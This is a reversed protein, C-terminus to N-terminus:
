AVNTEHAAFAENLAARLRQRARLLRVGVTGCPIALRSSIEKHSLRRFMSLEFPERYLPPLGAVAATVAEDSIAAWRPSEEPEITSTREILDLQPVLRWARRQQDCHLNRMICTAWARINSGPTFDEQHEIVKRCTDQVLDDAQAVNAALTHATRRLQPLIAVLEAMLQGSMPTRAGNRPPLDLRVQTLETM